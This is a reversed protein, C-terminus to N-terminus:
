PPSPPEFGSPAVQGELARVAREFGVGSTLAPVYFFPRITDRGEVVIEAVLTRLLGKRAEKKRQMLADRIRRRLAALLRPDPGTAKNAALLVLPRVERARAWLQDYDVLGTESDVTYHAVEFLKGSINPRFGHTLHGGADLAMGLLRQGGFARRLQEWEGESFALLDKKGAEQLAPAEVRQTLISWFAVLNADIGSHPQLYAHEAGFLAKALEVGRAEIADVNDCGAYFRGPSGEAYKDSLWNGMALLVASSAYNESAILKLNARQDVLEARIAQAIEPATRGVVDLAAAFAVTEISVQGLDIDPCAARLYSGLLSASPSTSPSSSSSAASM